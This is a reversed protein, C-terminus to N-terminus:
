FRPSGGFTKEMKNPINAVADNNIIAKSRSSNPILKTRFYDTRNPAM